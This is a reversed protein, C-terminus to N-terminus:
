WQLGATHDRKRVLVLELRGCVMHVRIHTLHALFFSWVVGQLFCVSSVNGKWSHMRCHPQPPLDGKREHGFGSALFVLWNTGGLPFFVSLPRLRLRLTRGRYKVVVSCCKTWKLVAPWIVPFVHRSTVKLYVCNPSKENPGARLFTLHFPVGM